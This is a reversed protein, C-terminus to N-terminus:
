HEPNSQFFLTKKNRSCKKVEQPTRLQESNVFKLHKKPFTRLNKVMQFLQSSRMGSVENSSQSKGAQKGAWHELFEQKKNTRLTRLASDLKQALFQVRFHEEIKENKHKFNLVNPDM